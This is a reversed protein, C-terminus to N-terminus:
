RAKEKAVYNAGRSEIRMEGDGRPSELTTIAITPGPFLTQEGDPVVSSIRASGLYIRRAALNFFTLGIMGTMEHKFTDFAVIDAFVAVGPQPIAQDFRPHGCLLVVSARMTIMAGKPDVVPQVEKKGKVLPPLPLEPDCQFKIFTNEARVKEIDARLEAPVVENHKLATKALEPNTGRWGRGTTQSVVYWRKAGSSDAFSTGNLVVEGPQGGGATLDMAKGASKMAEEISKQLDKDDIPVPSPPPPPPTYDFKPACAALTLFSALLGTSLLHAHKM